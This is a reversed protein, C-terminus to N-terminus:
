GDLRGAAAHALRLAADLLARAEAPTLPMGAELADAAEGPAALTALRARETLRAYQTGAAPSPQMLRTFGTDTMGRTYQAVCYSALAYRAVVPYSKDSSIAKVYLSM